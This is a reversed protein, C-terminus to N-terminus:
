SGLTNIARAALVAIVILSLIAQAMMLGKMRRSLVLTDTPSFATSTNFALFLYDFFGPSWGEVVGDDDQQQQPFSFDTSAHRGPRRVTPGGGDLEWYWLAFTIINAVWILGAQRLLTLPETGGSPLQVLLLVASSAVALTLLLPVGLALLHTVKHYGLRRSGILPVLLALMAVLVTWRPGVTYREPLFFFLLGLVLIAILAPWRPITGGTQQLRRDTARLRGGLLDLLALAARPRALRLQFLQAREIRLVDLDTSATATATRPGPNLLAIEGVIGGPGITDLLADRGNSNLTIAVQGQRVIYLADGQEGEAFLRQEARLHLEAGGAVLAAREEADLARLFPSAALIEADATM